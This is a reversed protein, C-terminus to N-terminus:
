PQVWMAWRRIARWNIQGNPKYLPPQEPRVKASWYPRGYHVKEAIRGGNTTCYEGRDAGCKPCKSRINEEVQAM